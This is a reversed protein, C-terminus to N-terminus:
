LLKRHTSAGGRIYVMVIGTFQNSFSKIISVTNDREECDMWSQYLYSSSCWIDYRYKLWCSPVFSLHYFPVPWTTKCSDKRLPGGLLGTWRVFKGCSFSLLCLFFHLGQAISKVGSYFPPRNGFFFLPVSMRM